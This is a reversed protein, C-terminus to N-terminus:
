CFRVVRNIERNILSFEVLIIRFKNRNQSLNRMSYFIKSDARVTLRFILTCLRLTLTALIYAM